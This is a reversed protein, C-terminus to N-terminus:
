DRRRAARRRALLTMVGLGALLTGGTRPEPVPTSTFDATRLYSFEDAQFAQSAGGLGVLTIDTFGTPVQIGVFANGLPLAQDIQVQELVGDRNLDTSVIFRLTEILALDPFAGNVSAVRMGFQAMAQDFHVQVNRPGFYGPQGVVVPSLFNVAFVQNVARALAPDPIVVDALPVERDYTFLQNAGFHMAGCNIPSVNLDGAVGCATRALPALIQNLASTATGLTFGEKPLRDPNFFFLSYAKAGDQMQSIATMQAQATAAGLALAACLLSPFLQM